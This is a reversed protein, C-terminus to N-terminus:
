LIQEFLVRKLPSITLSHYQTPYKLYRWCLSESICPLNLNTWITVRLSWSSVMVFTWLEHYSYVKIRRFFRFAIIKQFIILLFRNYLIIYKTNSKGSITSYSPILDKIKCWTIDNQNPRSMYTWPYDENMSWSNIM